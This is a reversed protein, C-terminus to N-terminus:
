ILSYNSISLHTICISYGSDRRASVYDFCSEQFCQTNPDYLSRVYRGRERFLFGGRGFLWTKGELIWVDVCLGRGGFFCGDYGLGLGGFWFFFSLILFFWFAQRERGVGSGFVCVGLASLLIGTYLEIRKCGVLSGQQPIGPKEQIAQHSSTPHTPM